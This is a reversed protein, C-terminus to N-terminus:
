FLFARTPVKGPLFCADDIVLMNGEPYFIWVAFKNIFQLKKVKSVFWFLPEPIEEIVKPIEQLTLM